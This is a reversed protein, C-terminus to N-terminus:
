LQILSSDAVVVVVLLVSVVSRVNSAYRVVSLCSDNSKTAVLYTYKNTKSKTPYHISYIIVLKYYCIFRSTLWILQIFVGINIFLYM